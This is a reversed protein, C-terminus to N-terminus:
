RGIVILPRQQGEGAEGSHVVPLPWLSMRRQRQPDDARGAEVVHRLARDRDDPCPRAGAVALVHRGLERRTQDLAIHRHHRAACVADVTGRVARRQGSVPEGNRHERATDVDGVRGTVGRQQVPDTLVPQDHAFVRGTYTRGAM